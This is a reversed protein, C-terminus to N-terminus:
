LVMTSYGLILKNFINMYEDINTSHLIQVGLISTEKYGEIDIDLIDVFNKWISELTESGELMTSGIAFGIGSEYYFDYDSIFTIFHITDINQQEIIWSSPYDIYVHSNSEEFYIMDDLWQQTLEEPNNTDEGDAYAIGSIFFVFIFFM